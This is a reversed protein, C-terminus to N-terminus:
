VGHMKILKNQSILNNKYEQFLMNDISRTVGEPMGFLTRVSNQEILYEQKESLPSDFVKYLVFDRNRFFVENEEPYSFVQEPVKSMDYGERVIAIITGTKKESWHIKESHTGIGVIMYERDLVRISYSDLEQEEMLNKIINLWEENTKERRLLNMSDNINAIQNSEEQLIHLEKEKPVNEKKLRELELDREQYLQQRKQELERLKRYYEDSKSAELKRIQERLPQLKRYRERKLNRTLFIRSGSIDDALTMIREEIEKKYHELDDFSEIEIINLM